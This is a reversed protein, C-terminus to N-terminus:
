DPKSCRYKERSLGSDRPPVTTSAARYFHARNVDEFANEPRGDEALFGSDRTLRRQPVFTVFGHFPLCLVRRTSYVGIQLQLALGPAM